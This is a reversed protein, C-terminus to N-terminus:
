IGWHLGLAKSLFVAMQARTLNADPCFNNADCGSTIGSNALAEIAQFAWHGTPVDNFSATAPAPSITRTWGVAAGFFRIDSTSANADVSTLVTINFYTNGSGDGDFDGYEHIVMPESPTVSINIYGPTETTGTSGTGFIKSEPTSDGLIYPPYTPSYAQVGYLWFTVYSNADNDYLPMYVSKVEAGNPLNIQAWYIGAGKQGPQVYGNGFMTPVVSGSRPMFEPAGISTWVQNPGFAMNTEPAQDATMAGQQPVMAPFEEEKASSIGAALTLSALLTTTIKLKKM